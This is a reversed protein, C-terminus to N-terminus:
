FSIGLIYVFYICVVELCGKCKNQYTQRMIGLKPDNETVM